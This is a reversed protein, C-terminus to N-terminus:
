FDFHMQLTRRLFALHFLEVHIKNYHGVGCVVCGYTLKPTILCDFLGYIHMPTVSPHGLIHQNLIAQSRSTQPVVENLGSHFKNTSSFTVGFYTFNTVQEVIENNYFM